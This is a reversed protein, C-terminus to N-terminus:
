PDTGAGPLLRSRHHPLGRRGYDDGADKLSSGGDAGGAAVKALEGALRFGTLEAQARHQHESRGGFGRYSVRRFVAVADGDYGIVQECEPWREEAKAHSAFSLPIAVTLAPRAALPQRSAGARGQPAALERDAPLAPAFFLEQWVGRRSCLL